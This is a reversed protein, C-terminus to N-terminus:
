FNDDDNDKPRDVRSPLLAIRADIVDRASGAAAGVIPINLMAAIEFVIGIATTPAGREIAKLTGVSIGAREALDIQTWQALRREVTIQRGLVSLADITWPPYSHPKRSM